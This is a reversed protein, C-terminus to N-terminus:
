GQLDQNISAAQATRRTVWQESVELFMPIRKRRWILLARVAAHLVILGVLGLCVWFLTNWLPQLSNRQPTMAAQLEGVIGQVTRALQEELLTDATTHAPSPPVPCSANLVHTLLSLGHLCRWRALACECANKEAATLGTTTVVFISGGLGEVSKLDDSILADSPPPPPRPPGAVAVVAPARPLGAPGSAAPLASTPAPADTPAQLLVRQRRGLVAQQAAYQAAKQRQQEQTKLQQARQRARQQQILFQRHMLQSLQTGTLALPSPPPPPRPRPRWPAAARGTSGVGRWPATSSGTPLPKGNPPAVTLTSATRQLQGAIGM